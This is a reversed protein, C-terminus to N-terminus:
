NEDQLLTDNLKTLFRVVVELEEEPLSLEAAFRLAENLYEIMGGTDYEQLTKIRDIQTQQARLLEGKPIGNHNEEVEQDIRDLIVYAKNILQTKSLTIARKYQKLKNKEVFYNVASHTEEVWKAITAISTNTELYLSRILKGKEETM